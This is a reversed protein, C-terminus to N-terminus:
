TNFVQQFVVGVYLELALDTSRCESVLYSLDFNLFAFIFRIQSMADTNIKHGAYFDILSKLSEGNRHSGYFDILAQSHM